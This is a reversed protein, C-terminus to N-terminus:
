QKSSIAGKLRRVPFGLFYGIGSPRRWISKAAHEAFKAYDNARFFSGALTRHLNGYCERKEDAGRRSFAKDFGLLMEREMRRINGHMNSGHMRYDLLVEPVFGTSHRSAVQYFVDWDASTSLRLDFGGIRPDRLLELPDIGRPVNAIDDECGCMVGERDFIAVQFAPAFQKM